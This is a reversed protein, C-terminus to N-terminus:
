RGFRFVVGAEIRVNNQRMSAFRTMLYEAQIMRIAVHETVKLDLGGGFTMAFANQSVGGGSVRAGGFLAQAYPIVASKSRYAIKPGFLYTFAHASGGSIGTVKCASFDGVVGFWSNLNGAISGGGGHCNVGPSGGGPNIRVYTYTGALEARPTESQAMASSTVLLALGALIVFKRM